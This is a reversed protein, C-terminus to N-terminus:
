RLLDFRDFRERLEPRMPHIGGRDRRALWSKVGELAEAGTVDVDTVAELTSSSRPSM